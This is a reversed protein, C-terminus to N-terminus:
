EVLILLDRSTRRTEAGVRDVLMSMGICGSMGLLAPMVEDRVYAIGADIAGPRALVTTSRAYV